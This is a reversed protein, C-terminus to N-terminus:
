GKTLKYQGLDPDHTMRWYDVFRWPMASFVRGSKNRYYTTMGPHTWIMAEHEADVKRVYDDLVDQRVDIAAVDHEIMDVLCASIYRSQCESQFIVSGGHAPGSNPGLMCFFNPFGPVTLGLFATPNDNGWADSLDKSDRGRINLRAAMETVKFGTAIVIIDAPRHEGDATVIGGQDFHDIADTVLEVNARTLTKFWNNDLLIRKGYPPYTPVCKAILDPRDRLETLIFETLEQRHRDNGKNVAREPYPWAPDKRLFPLLGDGYRWFMNFRYWQVYFPLHALLWRAGETIPDSYGKVPRAWQATRQYVTVSAVRGAISPVLQMSTAGTGIVAVHKGDLEIDSSWLASHLITGKFDEEGKFRARSPDNLQGIASVLATSEFTEEGNKTKLTSIWRRKGEDWHSSTLETNVRLHNRIGYEDAVKLLYGLLEERPCFYRTWANRSGFSYSYSHNPTDVGCGPYRNIWWTGGLEDNKEVITYPIGLHGLAVGLAIACVGAGVILVHQQALKQDSPRHTWRADRPVFGMEERMLPAYEPAVNEGLCARMMRLLLEEGPDTIVPKPTGNAFLKVVAARIEDQVNEPVGADPDPILRIDRKPLYPPELWREDGTMHVLVMLLCRIDGEAITSALDLPKHPSEINM